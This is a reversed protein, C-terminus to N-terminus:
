QVPKDIRISNTAALVIDHLPAGFKPLDLMLRVDKSGIQQHRKIVISTLDNWRFSDAKIQDGM